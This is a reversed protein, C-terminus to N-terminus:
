AASPTRRLARWTWLAGLADVIGFLVLPWRVWGALVFVLFFVPASLRCLVTARFFPTLEAAAAAWYYVGLVLLLMGIVRIWVESTPPLGFSTLLLNPVLLVAAALVGLYVAFVRISRAAPTM